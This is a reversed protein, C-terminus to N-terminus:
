KEYFKIIKNIIISTSLNEYRKIYKYKNLEIAGKYWIKDNNGKYEEGIIVCDIKNDIIFDKDVILNANELIEDVNKCLKVTEIRINEDIIPNRKYSKVTEDSHIGVILHIEQNFSKKINEFLKMHGIHCMDFVGCCYVRKIKKNVFLLNINLEKSIKYIFNIIYNFIFISSYKLNIYSSLILLYNIFNVNLKFIKYNILDLLLPTDIVTLLYSYKTPFLVSLFIKIPYYILIVLKLLNFQNNDDKLKYIKNITYILFFLTIFYLIITNNVIFDPLKYNYYFLVILITLIMNIDSLNKFIIKKKIIASYHIENFILSSINIIMNELVIDEIGIMKNFSNGIFGLVMLDVIHDNYEGIISTQNINRAHIGDLGDFNLYLFICFSMIINNKSYFGLIISLFGLFTLINPHIYNPIFNSIKLWIRNYIKYFFNNDESQYKYCKLENLNIENLM